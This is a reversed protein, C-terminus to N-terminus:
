LLDMHVNGGQIKEERDEYNGGQGGLFGYIQGEENLMLDFKVPIVKLHNDLDFIIVSTKLHRQFISSLSNNKDPVLDLRKALFICLFFTLALFNAFTTFEANFRLVSGDSSLRDENTSARKFYVKSDGVFDSSLDQVSFLINAREDVTYALM